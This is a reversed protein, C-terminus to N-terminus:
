SLGIDANRVGTNTYQCDDLAEKKNELYNYGIIFRTDFFVREEAGAPDDTIEIGVTGPIKLNSSIPNGSRSIGSPYGRNRSVVSLSLNFLTRHRM